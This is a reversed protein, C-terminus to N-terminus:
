FGTTMWPSPTSAFFADARQMAGPTIEDIRRARHLATPTVGGLYICGLEVIGMTLDAPEDTRTCAAHDAGGEIAYRGSTAPRFEDHAEVVLRDTTGYRRASMAAEVDIIRVWLDDVVDTTTLQRPDALRWRIPEDVPRGKAVVTHILDHEFTYQWLAAEIEDDRGYLEDIRFQNRSLGHETDRTRRYALMGDVEGADNEHLVHWRESAGGRDHERDHLWDTWWTDARNVAGPIQRRRRDYVGPAHEEFEEKTCLRLRGGATPPRILTAHDTAITYNAGLVGLGYGFRGYILSESATLLAVPEGRAAIDDLQHRMMSRLIGRRRHTAHVTVITVGAAAVTLNGPLTLEFTFAGATGVIAGDTDIAAITRDLELVGRFDELTHEGGHFGFPDEMVRIFLPLEDDTTPRLEFTM